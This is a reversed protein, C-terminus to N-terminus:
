WEDLPTRGVTSRRQTHDLFMLFPHEMYIYIYIYSMLPRLTLEKLSWCFPVHWLFHRTSLVPGVRHRSTIEFTVDINTFLITYQCTVAQLKTSIYLGTSVHHCVTVCPLPFHLPFQRISHTALVRWVRKSCLTELMVVASACVEASLLRSFLRGRRNLHVRGNRRFVFEPKQVHAM